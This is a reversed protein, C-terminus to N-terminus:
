QRRGDYACKKYGAPERESEIDWVAAACIAAIGKDYCWGATNFDPYESKHTLIVRDNFMMPTVSVIWEDTKQIVLSGMAEDFYFQDSSPLPNSM